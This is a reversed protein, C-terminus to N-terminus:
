NFANYLDQYALSMFIHVKNTAELNMTLLLEILFKTKSGSYGGPDRWYCKMINPGRLWVEGLTGVPVSQDGNIILVDNVPM